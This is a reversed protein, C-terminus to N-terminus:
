DGVKINIDFKCDKGQKLCEKYNEDAVRTADSIAVNVMYSNFMLAVFSLAVLAAFVILLKHTQSNEILDFENETKVTV